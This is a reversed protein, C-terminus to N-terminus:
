SGGHWATGKATSGYRESCQAMKKKMSKAKGKVAGKNEAKFKVMGKNKREKPRVKGEM